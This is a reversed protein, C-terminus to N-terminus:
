TLLPQSMWFELYPYEAVVLIGNVNGSAYVQSVLFFQLTAEYFLM